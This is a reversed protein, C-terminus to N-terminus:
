LSEKNEKFEIGIEKLEALIPVYIEPIVPIHVGTISIKGELILRTGIAPPLGVTRSMSSDGNPIGFDILTSMIRERKGNPYDAEFTHQLIIM